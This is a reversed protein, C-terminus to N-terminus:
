AFAVDTRLTEVRGLVCGGLTRVVTASDEITFVVRGNEDTLCEFSGEAVIPVVGVGTTVTLVDCAVPEDPSAATGTYIYVRFRGNWAAGLRDVVQMTVQRVNLTEAGLGTVKLSWPARDILASAQQQFIEPRLTPSLTRQDAM